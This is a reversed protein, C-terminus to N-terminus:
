PGEEEDIFERIANEVAHIEEPELEDLSRAALRVVGVERMTRAFKLQVEVRSSAADDTGALYDNPVELFTSLASVTEVSGIGELFAYWDRRSLLLGEESLAARAKLFAADLDDYLGAAEVALRARDARAIEAARSGRVSEGARRTARSILDLPDDDIAQCLMVLEVVSVPRRGRLVRYISDDTISAREAWTKVNIQAIAQAARLEAALAEQLPLVAAQNM